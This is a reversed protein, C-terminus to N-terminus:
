IKLGRNITQKTELEEKFTCMATETKNRGEKIEQLVHASLKKAMQQEGDIKCRITGTDSIHVDTIRLLGKLWHPQKEMHLAAEICKSIEKNFQALFIQKEKVAQKKLTEMEDPHTKIGSNKIQLLELAANEANCYLPILRDPLLDTDGSRFNHPQVLSNMWPEWEVLLKHNEM